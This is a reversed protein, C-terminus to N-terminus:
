QAASHEASHRTTGYRHLADTMFRMCSLAKKIRIASKARATAARIMKVLPRCYGGEAENRNGPPVPPNLCPCVGSDTERSISM